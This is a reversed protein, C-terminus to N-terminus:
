RHIVQSAIAAHLTMCCAQLPLGCVRHQQILTCTFLCGPLEMQQEKGAARLHDANLLWQKGVSCQGWLERM